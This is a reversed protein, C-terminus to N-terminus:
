PYIRELYSEVMQYVDCKDDKKKECLLLGLNNYDGKSALTEITKDVCYKKREKKDMKRNTFTRTKNAASYEIVKIYPWIINFFSMVHYSLKTAKVNLRSMQKEVLCVKSLGLLEAENFLIINVNQLITFWNKDSIDVNEWKLIEIDKHNSVRAILYAFNKTGLDFSSIIM